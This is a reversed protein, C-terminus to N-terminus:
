LGPLLQHHALYRVFEEAMQEPTAAAPAASKAVIRANNSGGM